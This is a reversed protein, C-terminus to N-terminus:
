RIFEQFDIKLNNRDLSYMWELKLLSSLEIEIANM